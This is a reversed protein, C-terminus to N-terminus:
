VYMSVCVRSYPCVHVYLVSRLRDLSGSPDALEEAIFRVVCDKLAGLIRVCVRTDRHMIYIYIYIIKTQRLEALFAIYPTGLM